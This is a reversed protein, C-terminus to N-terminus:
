IYINKKLCMPMKSKLIDQYKSFTAWVAAIRRKIENTKDNEMKLLQGLYIYESVQELSQTGIQIASKTTYENFM